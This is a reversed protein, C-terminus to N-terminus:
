RPMEGARERRLAYRQAEAQRGASLGPMKREAPKIYSLNVRVSSPDESRLGKSRESVCKAKRLLAKEEVNDDRLRAKRPLSQPGGAPLCPGAEATHREQTLASFTGGGDRPNETQSDAERV